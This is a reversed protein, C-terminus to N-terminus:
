APLYGATQPNLRDIRRLRSRSRRGPAAIWVNPLRPFRTARLRSEGTTRRKLGSRRQRWCNRGFNRAAWAGREVPKFESSLDQARRREMDKAFESRGDASDKPIRKEGLLRDVHPFSSGSIIEFDTIAKGWSHRM